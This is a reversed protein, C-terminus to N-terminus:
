AYTSVAPSFKVGPFHFKSRSPWLLWWIIGGPIAEALLGLLVILHAGV